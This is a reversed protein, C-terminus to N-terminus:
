FPPDELMMDKLEERLSDDSESAKFKRGPSRKVLEAKLAKRDMGALTEEIEAEKDEEDEEEDELEEDDEEEDLDDEDEEDDDSDEEDQLSLISDILEAKKKIAAVEDADQDFEDTLIKRLAALNKGKLDDETYEVVADDGEDEELEEDMDTAGTVKEGGVSDRVPFVQDMAMRESYEGDAPEKQMYVNVYTGVPNKGGVSIVPTNQKDGKLFKTPDGATKIEAEEKGCVALLFGQLREQLMDAEGLVIRGVAPFGNYKARDDGPLAELICVLNIMLNDGSSKSMTAKAIKARYSANRMPIPEGDYPTFRRVVGKTSVKLVKPM